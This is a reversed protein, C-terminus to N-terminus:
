GKGAIDKLKQQLQDVLGPLGESDSCGLCYEIYTWDQSIFENAEKSIDALVIPVSSDVIVWLARLCVIAAQLAKAVRCADCSDFAQFLGSVGEQCKHERAKTLYTAALM